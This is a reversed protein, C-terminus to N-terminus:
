RVHTGDAVLMLILGNISSLLGFYKKKICSNRRLGVVINRFIHHSMVYYSLYISSSPIIIVIVAM